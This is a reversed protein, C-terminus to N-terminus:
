NCHNNNYQVCSMGARKEEENESLNTQERLLAQSTLLPKDNM